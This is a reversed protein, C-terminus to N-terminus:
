MALDDEDVEHWGVATLQKKMEIARTILLSTDDPQEYSLLQALCM